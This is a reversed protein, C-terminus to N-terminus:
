SGLVKRDTKITLLALMSWIMPNSAPIKLFSVLILLFFCFLLVRRQPLSAFQVARALDIFLLCLLCITLVLGIFGFHLSYQCLTCYIDELVPPNAVGFLKDFLLRYSSLLDLRYQFQADPLHFFPDISIISALFMVFGSLKVQIGADGSVYTLGNAFIASVARYGRTNSNTAVFVLALVSLTSLLIVLNLSLRPSRLFRKFGYGFGRISALFWAISVQAFAVITQGSGAMLSIAILAIINRLSLIGYLCLVFVALLAQESIRSPEPFFSTFGRASFEVFISRNIFLQIVETFGILNLLAGAFYICLFLEISKLIDVRSSAKFLKICAIFYIPPSLLPYLARAFDTISSGSMVPAFAAFIFATLSFFLLILSVAKQLGSLNLKIRSQLFFVVSCVLFVPQIDSPFIQPVGIYPNFLFFLCLIKFNM